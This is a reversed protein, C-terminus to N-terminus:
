TYEDLIEQEAESYESVFERLVDAESEKADYQEEMLHTAIAASLPTAVLETGCIFCQEGVTGIMGDLCKPCVVWQDFEVMSLDRRGM